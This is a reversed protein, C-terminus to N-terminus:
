AQSPATCMLCSCHLQQANDKCKKTVTRKKLPHQQHWVEWHIVTGTEDKVSKFRYCKSRELESEFQQTIFDSFMDKCARLDPNQIKQLEVQLKGATKELRTRQENNKENIYQLLYSVLEAHNQEGMLFAVVSANASEAMSNGTKFCLLFNRIYPGAWRHKEPLISDVFDSAVGGWKEKFETVNAEWEDVSIDPEQLKWKFDLLIQKKFPHGNVWEALNRERLHWNCLGALLLCLSQHLVEDSVLRDSMTVKTTHQLAPVVSKMSDLIWKYAENSEQICLCFAVIYLKNEEDIVAIPYFPWDVASIKSKIADLFVIQAYKAAMFQMEPTMFMWATLDQQSSRAIRFEFGEYEEKLKLFLDVVSAGGDENLQQKIYEAAFKEIEVESTIEDINKPVSFIDEKWKTHDADLTLLKARLNAIMMGTIVEDRKVVGHERLLERVTTNQYRKGRFIIHLTLALPKPIEM